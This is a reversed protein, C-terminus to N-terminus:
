VSRGYLVLAGTIEYDLCAITHIRVESTDPASFRVQWPSLLVRTEMIVSLRSSLARRFPSSQLCHSSLLPSDLAWVLFLGAPLAPSESCEVRNFVVAVEELVRISCEKMLGTQQSSVSIYTNLYSKIVICKNWIVFLCTWAFWSVLCVIWLIIFFSIAHM